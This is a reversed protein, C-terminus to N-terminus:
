VLVMFVHRRNIVLTAFLSWEANKTQLVKFTWRTFEEKGGYEHRNFLLGALNVDFL